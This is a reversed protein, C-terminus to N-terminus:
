LEVGRASCENLLFNQVLKFAKHAEATLKEHKTRNRLYRNLECLVAHIEPGMLALEHEVQEEPLSFELNAKPMDYGSGPSSIANSSNWCILQYSM